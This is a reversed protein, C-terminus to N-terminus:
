VGYAVQGHQNKHCRFCLWTVDLPRSYDSHHAQSKPNGCHECPLRTLRGDRIANNVAVRASRKQPNRRRAARQAKLGAPSHAYKRKTRRTSESQRERRGALKGKESQRWKRRSQALKGSERYGGILAKYHESQRYAAIQTAHSLRYQRDREHKCDRCVGLHGDRSTRHPPFCGLDKECACGKCIKTM